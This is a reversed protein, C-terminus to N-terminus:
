VIHEISNENAIILDSTLLENIKEEIKDEDVDKKEETAETKKEKRSMLISTTSASSEQRRKGLDIGMETMEILGDDYKATNIRNITKKIQQIDGKDGLTDTENTMNSTLQTVDERDLLPINAYATQYKLFYKNITVIGGHKREARPTHLIIFIEDSLTKFAFFSAYSKNMTQDIKKFTEVANIISSALNILGVSLSVWKGYEQPVYGINLISAFGCIAQMITIPIRYYQLKQKYRTYANHFRKSYTTTAKHLFRLINEHEDCWYKDNLSEVESQYGVTSEM